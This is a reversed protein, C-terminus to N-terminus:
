PTRLDATRYNHAVVVAYGANIGIMTLVAALRNRRWLREVAVVTAATAGTKVLMMAAGSGAVPRLLPNSEAYGRALAHRTSNTDLVQLAAFTVYLPVLSAPRREPRFVVEPVDALRASLHPQLMAVAPLLDHVFASAAPAGVHLAGAIASVALSRRALRCMAPARKGPSRTVPAAHSAFTARTDHWPIISQLM